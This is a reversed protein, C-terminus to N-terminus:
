STLAQCSSRFLAALGISHRNLASSARMLNFDNYGDICYRCSVLGVLFLSQHSQEHTSHYTQLVQLTEEFQNTALLDQALLLEADPFKIAKTHEIAGANTNILCGCIVALIFLNCTATYIRM